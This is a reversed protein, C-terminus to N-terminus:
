QRPALVILSYSITLLVGWFLLDLFVSGSFVDLPALAAQAGQAM